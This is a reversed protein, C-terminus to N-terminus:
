RTATVIRAVSNGGELVVAGTADQDLVLTVNDGVKLDAFTATGGNLTVSADTVVYTTGSVTISKTTKGTVNDTVNSIASITGAATTYYVTIGALSGDKNLDLFAKQNVALDSFQTALGGYNVTGVVYTTGGVTVKNTTVGNITEAVVNSVVGSTTKLAASQAWVKGDKDLSLVYYKNVDLADVVFGTVYNYTVGNLTITKATTDIATPYGEVKVTTATLEVVEDDSADLIASVQLNDLQNATIDAGTLEVGDIVVKATEKVTYTTTDIAFTALVPGTANYATTASAYGNAARVNSAISVLSLTLDENQVFTLVANDGVVLSDFSAAVGNRTIVTNATLDYTTGGVTVKAPVSEDVYLTAPDDLVAATKAAIAGTLSLAQADVAKLKGDFTLTATVKDGVVLNAFTAGVVADGATDNKTVTPAATNSYVNGDVNLSYTTVGNSTIVSVSNVFGTVTNDAATLDVVKGDANLVLVVKQDVDFAKGDATSGALITYVKEVGNELVTFKYSTAFNVDKSKVTGTVVNDAAESVTLFNIKGDKLTYIVSSGPKIDGYVKADKLIAKTGGALVVSGEATATPATYANAVTAVTDTTTVLRVYDNTAAKEVKKTVVNVPVKQFAVTSQAVQGRTAKANADFGDALLGFESATLVDNLYWPTSTESSELGLARVLMTAVEAHTVNNSPKFTGDPYGNVLGKSSAIAIYGSAWHSGKVDAFKTDSGSLTQAQAGWGLTEVLIKAFEARTIDGEPKFTGDPYGNVYGQSYLILIDNQTKAGDLDSFPLNSNSEALAFMPTLMTLLLALILIGSIGKKM